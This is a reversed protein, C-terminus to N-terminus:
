SRGGPPQQEIGLIELTGPHSLGELNAATAAENAPRAPYPFDCGGAGMAAREILLPQLDHAPQPRCCYYGQWLDCELISIRELQQETEVGEAIVQLGVSHALAVIARVISEDTRNIVLDRVFSRDIKLKDIPLRRLYSLSSYGTGFDDIAVSVGMARLVALQEASREPNTMLTGETLEIELYRPELHAAHLASLITDMVDHRRFQVASLNVAVRLELGHTTSWQHAQRCAERLVWENLPVILGTEEALPIFSGPTIYGKQPHRWRLLAEVAPIGGSLTAIQPQYHLEFEGAVLARRLDNELALREQMSDSMGPEFFLVRDGGNRKATVMAAEAHALLDDGRRADDPCLSVGVSVQAHFEEGNIYLPQELATLMGGTIAQAQIRASVGDILVAFSDGGVRALTHVHPVTSELRHAIETLIHDGVGHGYSHNVTSFRDLDIVAVAITHGPRDTDALARALREKLVTRNALGTLPDHTAIHQLRAHAEELDRRSREVFHRARAAHVAVVRAIVLAAVGISGLALGLLRHDLVGATCCAGPVLSGQVLRADSGIMGAALLLGAAVVLMRHVARALRRDWLSWLGLALGLFTALPGVPAWGSIDSLAAGAGQVLTLHVATVTVAFTFASGALAPLDPRRGVVFLLTCLLGVCALALPLVLSSLAVPQGGFTLSELSCTAWLGLGLAFANLGLNRLDRGSADPLTAACALLSYASLLAMGVALAATVPDIPFNM